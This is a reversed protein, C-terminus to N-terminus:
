TILFLRGEYGRQLLAKTVLTLARQVPPHPNVEGDHRMVAFVLSGNTQGAQCIRSCTTAFVDDRWPMEITKFDQQWANCDIFWRMLRVLSSLEPSMPGVVSAATPLGPLNDALGTASVRGFSPRIGFLNNFGCPIRISGAIDTGWGVPSGRLALLAAEGGCAGGASLTRNYPSMTSGVINNTTEGILMSMPVNTKAFIIAGAEKLKRVLVGEDETSKPQGIGSVYGCSSDLGNVHFRDKLSVPVGHLPGIIQGTTRLLTDLEM